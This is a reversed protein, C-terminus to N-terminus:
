LQGILYLTDTRKVARHSLMYYMVRLAPSQEYVSENVTVDAFTDTGSQKLHLSLMVFININNKIVYKFAKM